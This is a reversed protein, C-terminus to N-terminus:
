SKALLQDLYSKLINYPVPGGIQQRSGKYVVEMTPTQTLHDSNGMAVDATVTDDLHMDNKVLDRVKQMEGPPLVKAIQADINGNQSWDQQTKFLQNAVTDYRGIQGAANAFRAALRSFQHMQLPFDRHLLRVKGTTVYETILPPLTDLYLQRCAPCEFDTYVELTIKATPSGSEKFNKAAPATKQEAAFKKNAIAPAPTQALLMAPLLLILFRMVKMIFSEGTRLNPGTENRKFGRVPGDGREKEGEM